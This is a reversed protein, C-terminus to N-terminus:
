IVLFYLFYALPNSGSLGLISLRKHLNELSQHTYRMKAYLDVRVGPEIFAKESRPQIARGLFLAYACAYTGATTGVYLPSPFRKQLILLFILILRFHIM